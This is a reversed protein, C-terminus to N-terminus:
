LQSLKRRRRQVSSPLGMSERYKAVTRRAIDIGEGQLIDVITDDSLVAEPSEEDILARIRFRVAEAAYTTGGVSSSIAQSFFYKLEYIGRPTAIFKNSTVRSVTSEHLDISQAIDRLILPRLASVGFKFFQDQQQVIETAVKLITTARQHLSRVLWNASQLCENLFLREDKNMRSQCARSYYQNNVLVRPLTESNLEVIWGGNPHARMLIDPTIPQIVPEDFVLAPKPNLTRLETVLKALDKAGVGCLRALADMEGRALCDLNDLLVAMRSDLRDSERLQIRLCEALDRAFIGPPDFRQLRDLTGLVRDEECGLEDAVASTDAPLYGSEDLLGILHLGIIREVPDHVDIALQSTLHERLSVSESLMSELNGDGDDFRGGRASWTGALSAGVDSTASGGTGGIEPDFVNDYDVDLANESAYGTEDSLARDVTQMGASTELPVDVAEGDYDAGDGSRADSEERELMPNEELQQEVFGSLELNSLQLLKIAQQLQPTMVLTQTQRVELRPTLAM